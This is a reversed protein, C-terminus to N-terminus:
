QELFVGPVLRENNVSSRVGGNSARSLRRGATSHRREKRHVVSRRGRVVVVPVPSPIQANVSVPRPERRPQSTHRGRPRPTRQQSPAPSTLTHNPHSREPPGGPTRGPTHTFTHTTKLNTGSRGCRATVRRSPLLQRARCTLETQRLIHRTAFGTMRSGGARDGRIRRDCRWIQGQELDPIRSEPFSRSYLFLLNSRTRSVSESVSYM